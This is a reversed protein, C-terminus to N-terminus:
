CVEGHRKDLLEAMRLALPILLREFQDVPLFLDDPIHESSKLWVAVSLERSGIHLDRLLHALTLKRSGYGQIQGASVTLLSRFYIGTSCIDVLCLDHEIHRHVHHHQAFCEPVTHRYLFRCPRDDVIRGVAFVLHQRSINRVLMAEVRAPDYEILQMGLRVPFQVIHHGLAATVASPLRQEKKYGSGSVVGVADAVLHMLLCLVDKLSPFM